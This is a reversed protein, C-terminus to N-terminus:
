EIVKLRRLTEDIEPRVPVGRAIEALRKQEREVQAGALQAVEVVDDLPVVTVALIVDGPRVAVSPAKRISKVLAAMM